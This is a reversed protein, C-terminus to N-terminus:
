LPGPLVYSAVVSRGSPGAVADIFNAFGHARFADYGGPVQANALEEVTVADSATPSFDLLQPYTASTGGRPAVLSWTWASGGRAVDIRVRVLDGATGDRETWTVARTAPAYTPASALAALMAAGYDLTYSASAAGWDYVVQEDLLGGSPQGDSVTIAIAGPADPMALKSSAQGNAPASTSDDFVRGRPTAIARYTRVFTVASPVDTYDFSTPDFAAYTGALVVPGELPVAAAFLSSTPDGNADRAVVLFDASSACTLVLQGTGSADITGGGCPTHVDYTTAAITPVVVDVTAGGAPDGPALELALADGARVAAFTALHPTANAGPAVATVFGGDPIVAGATGHADTALAAVLSSDAGQFYVAIGVAPQGHDTVRLTVAGPPADATQPDLTDPPADVPQTPFPRHSSCAALALIALRTAM